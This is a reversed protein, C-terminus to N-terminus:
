AARTRALRSASRIKKELLSSSQKPSGGFGARPGRASGLPIPLTDSM